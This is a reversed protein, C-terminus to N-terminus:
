STRMIKRIASGIFVTTLFMGLLSELVVYLRSYSVVSAFRAGSTAASFISLSFYMSSCLSPRYDEALVFLSTDYGIGLSDLNSGSERISDVMEYRRAIDKFAEDSYVFEEYQVHYIIGFIAVIAAAAIALQWIRIGFGCVLRWFLYVALFDVFVARLIGSVTLPKSLNEYIHAKTREKLQRYFAWDEDRLHDRSGFAKRMWKYSDANRRHRWAREALSGKIRAMYVSRKLAQRSIRTDNGQVKIFSLCNEMVFNTKRLDLTKSFVDDYFTVEEAALDVNNWYVSQEFDSSSIQLKAAKIATGFLHFEGLFDCNDIRFQAKALSFQSNGLDIDRRFTCDSLVFSSGFAVDEIDCRNTIDTGVVHVGSAVSMHQMLLIDELESSRLQFSGLINSELVSLGYCSLGNARFSGRLSTGSVIISGFSSDLAIIDQGIHSESISVNDSFSSEQFLISEEVVINSLHIEGQFISYSFDLSSAFDVSGSDHLPGSASIILGHQWETYTADLWGGISSDYISAAGGVSLGKLDTTGEIFISTFSLKGSVSSGSLDLGDQKLTANRLLIAGISCERIVLGKEFCSDSIDVVSDIYSEEIIVQGEIAQISRARISSSIDCMYLEFNDFGILGFLAVDGQCEVGSMNLYKLRTGKASFGSISCEDICLRDVKTSGLMLRSKLKCGHLTLEKLSDLGGLDIEQVESDIIEITNIKGKLFLTGINKDRILRSPEKRGDVTVESISIM